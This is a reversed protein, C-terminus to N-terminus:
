VLGTLLGWGENNTVRPLARIGLVQEINPPDGDTNDFSKTYIGPTPNELDAYLSRTSVIEGWRNVRDTGVPEVVGERAMAGTFNGFCVATDQPIIRKRYKVVDGAKLGGTIGITGSITVTNGSISDVTYKEREFDDTSVVYIEMDAELMSVDRLDLTNAGNSADATVDTQFQLFSKSFEINGLGLVNTMLTRIQDESGQFSDINNNAITVFRDNQMLDQMIDFPLKVQSVSRGTDYEYSDLWDQLEAIPEANAHDTFVTNVSPELYNPHAYDFTFQTGDELEAQVQGDFLVERRMWEMRNALRVELDYFLSSLLRRATELDQHTGIKRLDYLDSQGIRCKERFTAPEFKQKGRGAGRSYIPSEADMGVMPTMGGRDAKQIDVEVVDKDETVLPMVPALEYNSEAQPWFTLVDDINNTQLYPHGQSIESLELVKKGKNLDELEM